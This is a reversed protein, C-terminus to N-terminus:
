IWLNLPINGESVHTEASNSNLESEMVTQKSNVNSVLCKSQIPTKKLPASTNPCQNNKPKEKKLEEIPVKWVVSTPMSTNSPINLTPMNTLPQKEVLKHSCVAQSQDGVSLNKQGGTLPPQVLKLSSGTNYSHVHLHFRYIFIFSCTLSCVL